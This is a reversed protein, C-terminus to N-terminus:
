YFNYFFKKKLTCNPYLAFKNPFNKLENYSSNLIEHILKKTTLYSSSFKNM